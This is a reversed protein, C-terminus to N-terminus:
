KCLDKIKVGHDFVSTIISQVDIDQHQQPVLVNISNSSEAQKMASIPRRLRKTSNPKLDDDEEPAPYKENVNSKLRKNIETSERQLNKKKNELMKKIRQQVNANRENDDM